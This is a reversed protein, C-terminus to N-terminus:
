TLMEFAAVKGVKNIETNGHRSFYRACVLNEIFM